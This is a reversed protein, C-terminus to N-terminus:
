VLNSQVGGACMKTKKRYYERYKNENYVICRKGKNSDSDM